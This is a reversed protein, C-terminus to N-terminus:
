SSTTPVRMFRLIAIAATASPTAPSPPVARAV